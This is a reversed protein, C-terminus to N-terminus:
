CGNHLGAYAVGAQGGGLFHRNPQYLPNIDPRIDDKWPRIPPFIQKPLAEQKPKAAEKEQFQKICEKAYAANDDENTTEPVVQPTNFHDKLAKYLAESVTMSQKNLGEGFEIVYQHKVNLSM